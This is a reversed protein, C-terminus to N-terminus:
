AIRKNHYLKIGMDLPLFVPLRESPLWRVRCLKYRLDKLAIARKLTSTM